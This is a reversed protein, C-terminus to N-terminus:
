THLKNIIARTYETESWYPKAGGSKTFRGADRAANRRNDYTKALTIDDSWYINKEILVRSGFRRPAARKGCPSGTYYLRSINNSLGVKRSVCVLWPM